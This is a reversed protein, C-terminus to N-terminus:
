RLQRTTREIFSKGGTLAESLGGQSERLDSQRRKKKNVGKATKGLPVNDGGRVHKKKIAACLHQSKGPSMREENSKRHSSGETTKFIL